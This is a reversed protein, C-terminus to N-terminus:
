IKTRNNSMYYKRQIYDKEEPSLTAVRRKAKRRGNEYEEETKFFKCGYCEKVNLARCKGNMDFVCEEPVFDFVSKEM